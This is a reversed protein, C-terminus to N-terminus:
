YVNSKTQQLKADSILVLKTQLQGLNKFPKNAKDCFICTKQSRFGANCFDNTM